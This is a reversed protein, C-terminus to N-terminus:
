RYRELISCYNAVVAGGMNFVGGLAAQPVQIGQPAVGCLQMASLVHM